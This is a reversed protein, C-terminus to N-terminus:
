RYTKIAPRFADPIHEAEYDGPTGRIAFLDFRVAAFMSNNSLYVRAAAAMNARKRPTIAELPDENKDARTKVEGFIVIDGLSAVIDIELHGMRWNRERITAGERLLIDAAIKEGWKGLSNHEAM